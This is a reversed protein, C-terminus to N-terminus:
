RVTAFVFFYGSDSVQNSLEVKAGPKTKIQLTVRSGKRTLLRAELVPTAFNATFLPRRNNRGRLKAGPLTIEAINGHQQLTAEVRSTLQVFVIGSGDAKKQFGPWTVIPPTQGAKGPLHAPVEAKNPEVGPYAAVISAFLWIGVVFFQAVIIRM